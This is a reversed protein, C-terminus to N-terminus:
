VELQRMRETVREYEEQLNESQSRMADRDAEAKKLKQQAEKLDSRLKKEAESEKGDDQKPIQISKIKLIKTSDIVKEILNQAAKGAGEAQKM